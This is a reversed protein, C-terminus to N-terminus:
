LKQTLGLELDRCLRKSCTVTNSTSANKQALERLAAQISHIRNSHKAFTRRIYQSWIRRPVASPVRAPGSTQCMVGREGKSLVWEWSQRTIQRCPM